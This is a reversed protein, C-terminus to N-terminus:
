APVAAPSRVLRRAAAVLLAVLAAGLADSLLALLFEPV